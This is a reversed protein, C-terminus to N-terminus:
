LLRANLTALGLGAQTLPVAIDIIAVRYETDDSRLMVPHTFDLTLLDALRLLIPVQITPEDAEGLYPEWWKEYMNVSGYDSNSEFIFTFEGAVQGGGHRTLSSILPYGIGSPQGTNPDLTDNFGRYVLTRPAAEPGDVGEKETRALQAIRPVSWTANSLLPYPQLIIQALPAASVEIETSENGVKYPRLQVQTSFLSDNGDEAFQFIYGQDRKGLRTIMGGKVTRDRWDRVPQHGTLYRPVLQITKRLSDAYIGLNYYERIYILLDAITWDPIHDRLDIQGKGYNWTSVSDTDDLSKNNWLALRNIDVLQSYDTLDTLGLYAFAQTLLYKVRPFPVFSNRWQEGAAASNTVFSGAAADYMNVYGLWDSEELNYWRECLVPAFIYDSSLPNTMIGNAHAVLAAQKAAASGSGIARVGGLDLESLSVGFQTAIPSIGGEWRASISQGDLGRERTAMEGYLLPLGDSWIVVEYSTEPSEVAVRDSFGLKRRNSPSSPLTFSLSHTNDRIEQSFGPNILRLDIKTDFAMDLFEGTSRLQIGIM